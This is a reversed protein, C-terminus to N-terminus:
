KVNNHYVIQKLQDKENCLKRFQKKSLPNGSTKANDIIQNIQTIRNKMFDKEDKSYEWPQCGRSLLEDVSFPESGADVDSSPTEVSECAVDDVATSSTLVSDNLSVQEVDASIDLGADTTHEDTVESNQMTSNKLLAQAKKNFPYKKEVLEMILRNVSIGKDDAVQKLYMKYDDAIYVRVDTKHSKQSM